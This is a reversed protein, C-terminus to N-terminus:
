QSVSPLWEAGIAAGAILGNGMKWKGNEAGGFCKWTSTKSKGAVCKEKWKCFEIRKRQNKIKACKKDDNRKWTKVKKEQKEYKKLIKVIKRQM